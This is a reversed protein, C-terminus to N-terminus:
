DQYKEPKTEPLFLWLVGMGVVAMSTM